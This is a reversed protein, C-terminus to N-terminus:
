LRVGLHEAVLADLEPAGSLEGRRVHAVAGEPTVLLTVPPGSGFARLVTGTDDWVSPYTMDFGLSADDAFRLANERTDQHVVGVVDVKGTAREAFGQLVPVERVCPGCWTAWINVVMPRGTGQARLPVEGPQGVCPLVVDPLGAGIGPPCPALAAAERLAVLEGTSPAPEPRDRGGYALGAVLLVLVAALGALRGRSV